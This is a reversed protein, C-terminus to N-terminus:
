FILLAFCLFESIRKKKKKKKKVTNKALKKQPAAVCGVKKM